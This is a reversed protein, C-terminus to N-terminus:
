IKSHSHLMGSATDQWVLLVFCLKLVASRGNCILRSHCYRVSRNYEKEACTRWASKTSRVANTECRVASSCDARARECALKCGRKAQNHLRRSLRDPPRLGRGLQGVPLFLFAVRGPPTEAPPAIKVFTSGSM